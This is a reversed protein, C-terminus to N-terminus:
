LKWLKVELLMSTTQQTKLLHNTLIWKLHKLQKTVEIMYVGNVGDILGSVQGNELAFATGVVKPERGAGPLTPNSM